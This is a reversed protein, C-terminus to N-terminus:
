LGTNWVCYVSSKILQAELVEAFVTSISRSNAGLQDAIRVFSAFIGEVDSCHDFGLLWTM